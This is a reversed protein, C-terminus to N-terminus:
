SRKKRFKKRGIMALGILGSGFLLMTAPEPVPASGEIVDNACTMGWHFAIEDGILLDTGSIDVLFSVINNTSDISWSGTNGPTLDNTDVAVEQGNRYTAGTMFDDSLLINGSSLSYLKGSGGKAIDVGDWWRNDLAFGYSWTTGNLSNDGEYPASGYPDWSSSLFLDGYGIGNESTTYGTFTGLGNNAFNTHIDISLMNGNLEVTADFIDFLDKNGIVDGLSHNDAGVYNDPITTPTAMASGGLLFVALFSLLLIKLKM